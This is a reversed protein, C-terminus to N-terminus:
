TLLGVLILVIAIALLRNDMTLTDPEFNLTLVAKLLNWFSNALLAPLDVLRIRHWPLLGPKNFEAQDELRGLQKRIYKYDPVYAELEQYPYVSFSTLDDDPKLVKAWHKETKRLYEILDDKQDLTFKLSM